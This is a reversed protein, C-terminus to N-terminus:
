LKIDCAASHQPPRRLLRKRSVLHALLISLDLDPDSVLYAMSRLGQHERAGLKRSQAQRSTALLRADRPPSVRSRNPNKGLRPSLLKVNTPSNKLWM